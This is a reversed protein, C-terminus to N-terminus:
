KAAESETTPKEAVEECLALYHSIDCAGIAKYGRRYLDAEGRLSEVEKVLAQCQEWVIVTADTAKGDCRRLRELLADMDGPVIDHTFTTGIAQVKEARKAIVEHAAAVRDALGNIMGQLRVIEADKAATERAIHECLVAEAADWTEDNLYCAAPSFVKAIAKICDRAVM